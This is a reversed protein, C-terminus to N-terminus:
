NKQADKLFQKELDAKKKNKLEEKMSVEKQVAEEPTKFLEKSPAIGKVVGQVQDINILYYCQPPIQRFVSIKSRPGIEEFIQAATFFPKLLAQTIITGAPSCYANLDATVCSSMCGFSSCIDAIETQLMSQEEKLKQMLGPEETGLHTQEKQEEKLKQMFKSNKKGSMQMLVDTFDCTRDCNKLAMELHDRLCEKHPLLDEEREHCLEDLGSLAINFLTTQICTDKQEEVCLTANHYTWCLGLFRDVPDPLHVLEAAAYFLGTLCAQICEPVGTTDLSVALGFENAKLTNPALLLLVVALRTLM